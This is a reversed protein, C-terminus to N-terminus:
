FRYNMGIKIAHFHLFENLDFAPTSPPNTFVTKSGLDTYAYEGFVSIKDTVKVEVGAGVIYGTRNDGFFAPFAGGTVYDATVETRGFAVGGHVYALVDDTAFGGRMRLSGVYELTSHINVSGGTTVASHGTRAIDFVGGFVLNGRQYDAGVQVGAAVGSGNGVYPFAGAATGYYEITDSTHEAFAGVYAGTWGTSREAVELEPTDIIDFDAALAPSTILFSLALLAFKNM